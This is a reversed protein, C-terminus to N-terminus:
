GSSGSCYLATGTATVTLQGTSSASLSDRVTYTFVTPGKGETIVQVSSASTVSATATGSVRTISLLVLPVNNDPDSDNATLNVTGSSLCPISAADNV